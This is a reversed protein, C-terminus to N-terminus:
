DFVDVAYREGRLGDWWERAREMTVEKGNKEADSVVIKYATENVGKGLASSGCVYVRAGENFMKTIEERERWLRDQAYKCGESKDSKRSYAYYVKVAGQSEWEQLEDAHIADISPDRCGVILVAPALDTSKADPATSARKIARDQVFGRFPAIGTGACIMVVPVSPDTPLHFPPPSKRIAIQAISGPQLAKLYSTAVGPHLNTGDDAMSFTITAVTPDKLPSSSISYQRIRMPTLMSLYMSFPMEIDPYAELIDLVSRQNSGSTDISSAKDGAYSALTQLNKKTAGSNLEVYSTLVGSVSIEMDTPISSHAGKKLKMMADWPLAFRRLVRAVVSM